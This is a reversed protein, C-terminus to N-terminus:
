SSVWLDQRVIKGDCCHRQPRNGTAVVLNNPRRFPNRCSDGETIECCDWSAVVKGQHQAWSDPHAAFIPKQTPTSTKAVLSSHRGLSALFGVSGDICHHAFVGVVM